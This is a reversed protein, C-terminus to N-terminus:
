QRMMRMRLVTMRATKRKTTIVAVSTVKMRGSDKELVARMLISAGGRWVGTEIFDGPIENAIATEALMRLNALRKVGIMTHAMSPWDMGVKRIAADYIEAGTAKLPQDEYIIGTLCSEM